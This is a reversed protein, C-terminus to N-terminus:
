CLTDCVFFFPISIQVVPTNPTRWGSPNHVHFLEKFRDAAIHTGRDILHFDFTGEDTQVCRIQVSYPALVEIVRKELSNVAPCAQVAGRSIPKSRSKRLFRPEPYAISSKLVTPVYGIRTVSKGNGM